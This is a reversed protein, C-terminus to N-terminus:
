RDQFCKHVRRFRPCTLRNDHTTEFNDVFDHGFAFPTFLLGSGSTRAQAYCASMREPDPVAPYGAPGNYVGTERSTVEEETRWTRVMKIRESGSM